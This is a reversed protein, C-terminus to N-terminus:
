KADDVIEQQFALAQSHAEQKLGEVLQAKAEEATLGSIKELRRQHEEQHKELEAQKLNVVEIQRNLNQKIADNEKVQRELHETKQNLTLEKQKIRNEGENMKRNRENVERDHEAKLHVMREKAELEKEKRITEGRLQAEKILTQAQLEAEEVRKRNDKAFIFKGAIIGVLLAVVAVIITIINLDM